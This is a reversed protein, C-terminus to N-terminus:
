DEYHKIYPAFKINYGPYKKQINPIHYKITYQYEAKSMNKAIVTLTKNQKDRNFDATYHIRKGDCYAKCLGIDFNTSIHNVPKDHTVIIQYGRCLGYEEFNVNWVGSIKDKDLAFNEIGEFAEYSEFFITEVFSNSHSSGFIRQLVKEFEFPDTYLNEIFHQSCENSICPDWLFIDYDKIQKGFHADRIAGGALIASKFGFQQIQRLVKIPERLARTPITM